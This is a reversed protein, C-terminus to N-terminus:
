WRGRKRTSSIGRRSGQVMCGPLLLEPFSGLLTLRSARMNPAAPNDTALRRVATMQLAADPRALARSELLSATVVGSTAVTVSLPIWSMAVSRKRTTSLQTAKERRM